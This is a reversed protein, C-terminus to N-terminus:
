MKSEVDDGPSARMLWVKEQLPSLFPSFFSFLHRTTGSLDLVRRFALLLSSGKEQAGVLGIMGSM